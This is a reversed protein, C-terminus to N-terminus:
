TGFDWVASEGATIPNREAKFFFVYNEIEDTPPSPESMLDILTEFNFNFVAASTDVPLNLPETYAVETGLVDIDNDPIETPQGFEDDPGAQMPRDDATLDDEDNIIRNTLIDLTTSFNNTTDIDENIQVIFSINSDPVFRLFLDSTDGQTAPGFDDPITEDSHITVDTDASM